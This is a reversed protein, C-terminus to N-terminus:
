ENKGSMYYKVTPDDSEEPKIEQINKIDILRRKIGHKSGIMSYVKELAEQENGAVVDKTFKHWKKGKPSFLGSVRYVKMVM